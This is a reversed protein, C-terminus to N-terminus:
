KYRFRGIIKNLEDSLRKLEQANQEVSTSSNSIETASANVAGVEHNIEDIVSTSEAISVNVEEIGTSAQTVNESIERTAVSQEEIATAITAIIDNIDNIVTGIIEIEGVTEATTGQVGEIKSKIDATAAATQRALEKIENAVVAFGKGAEGARAAEITANLALLNTQESIETITETAASIARDDNGMEAMKGSAGQAQQVARESIARAKESNGAIENITASMEEVAAAVMSTNATTEEVTASVRIMSQSMESSAAAVNEAKRSSDMANSSLQTAIQLLNDSTGEVVGAHTGIDSIIKQLNDLFTNFWTALMGLEDKGHVELRKTLDGEGEAIDKIMQTTRVIPRALSAALFFGIGIFVGGIVLGILGVVSLMRYVDAMIESREILGVLKWGLQPSTLVRGVYAKDGLEFSIDGKSVKAMAQYGEAKLEGLTKFNNASIRPDALVVGDDQVLMVYGSTGIKASKILDTLGALSVDIGVVGVVRGDRSVTETATLVPDGTTSQYAKSIIPRGVNQLAEKYWPRVRPDYGPPLPENSAMSFGGHETGVYVDVFTKSHTQLLPRTLDLVRAEVPGIPLDSTAKKEKQEIFSNVSDDIAQVAPSKALLSTNFRTEDIFISIAKEIHHLQSDTSESFAQLSNKRISLSLFVCVLLIPIISSGLIAFLLKKRLTLHM